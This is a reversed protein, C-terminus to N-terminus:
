LTPATTATATLTSSAERVTIGQMIHRTNKDVLVAM